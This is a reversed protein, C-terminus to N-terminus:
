ETNVAYSSDLFALLEVRKIQNSSGSGTPLKKKSRDFADKINKWKKKCDGIPKSLSKGIENWTKKRLLRDKYKPDTVCYLHPKSKVLEILSEEEDYKFDIRRYKSNQIPSKNRNKQPKDDDETSIQSKDDDENPDYEEGSKTTM